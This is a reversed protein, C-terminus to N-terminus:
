KGGVFYVYIKFVIRRLYTSRRDSYKNHRVGSRGSQLNHSCRKETGPRAEVGGGGGGGGVGSPLATRWAAASASDCHNPYGRTKPIGM